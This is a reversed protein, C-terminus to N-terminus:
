NKVFKRYQIEKSTEITLIYAGASFHACNLVASNESIQHEFQMNRGAIDLIQVSLIESSQSTVFLNSEVPNPGVIIDNTEEISEQEEQRDIHLRTQTVARPLSYKKGYTDIMVGHQFVVPFDIYDESLRLGCIDDEVIFGVEAIMGNGSNGGGINSFVVDISGEKKQKYFGKIPNGYGAWSEGYFNVFVSSSDILTPDISFNFSLGSFDHIPTEESGIEVYFIVVQGSDVDSQSPILNVPSSLVNYAQQPLLDHIRGYNAEILDFDANDIIGDGNTDSHKLDRYSGTQWYNWDESDLGLWISSTDREFGANGVNFALEMIDLGNVIGDTNVDGEWVCDDLCACSSNNDVYSLVDVKVIECHSDSTCYEVEFFDAGANGQPDYVLTMVANTSDCDNSYSEQVVTLSGSAPPTIIEFSYNTYPTRHRIPLEKDAPTYFQYNLGYVNPSFHDVHVVINGTIFIFGNFVKYYLQVDGQFNPDAATYEFEGNGLYTLDNSYDIIPLYDLLDNELVNFTITNGPAVHTEDDKVFQVELSKDFVDTYYIITSNGDSFQLSDIGVFDNDPDYRWCNLLVEEVTGSSPSNILSFSSPLFVDQVAKNHLSLQKDEADSAIVVIKGENVNGVADIASYVVYANQSNDIVSVDVSISDAVVATCNDSYVISHIELAGDTSTDNYLPYVQGFGNDLVIVDDQTLIESEYCRFLHSTYFPYPIGPIDGIAYYEFILELDGYQGDAVQLTVEYLDDGINQIGLSDLELRPDNINSPLALSYLEFKYEVGSKIDQTKFDPNGQSILCLWCILCTLTLLIRTM